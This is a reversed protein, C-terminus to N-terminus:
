FVTEPSIHEMRDLTRLHYRLRAFGSPLAAQERQQLLSVLEYFADTVGDIDAHRLFVGTYSSANRWLQLASRVNELALDYDGRQAARESRILTEGIQDTMFDAHRVNWAAILILALLLLVAGHERKM